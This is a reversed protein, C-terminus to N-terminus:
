SFGPGCGRPGIMQSGRFVLPCFLSRAVLGARALWAMGRSSRGSRPASRRRVSSRFSTRTVM